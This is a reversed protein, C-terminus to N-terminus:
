ELMMGHSMHIMCSCVTSKEVNIERGPKLRLASCSGHCSQCACVRYSYISHHSQSQMHFCHFGVWMWLCLVEQVKGKLLPSWRSSVHIVSRESLWGIHEEDRMKRKKSISITENSTTSTAMSTTTATSSSSSSSPTSSSTM